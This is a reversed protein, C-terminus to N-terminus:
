DDFLSGQDEAAQKPRKKGKKDHLGAAVEAAYREHNLELLRDLIEQRVVPGVTHRVGQRTDHFGHDLELDDWGYARMVAQDIAVHISRLEAIDADKCAPDHVLNYTATLGAQRSLMVGERRYSDLREGWERMEQTLEPRAFTEFVDTPTYRIRTELTSSHEIAWWYHPASSLLGLMAHDETAFVVTADGYVQGGRVMVPMVAKSHRTIVAIWELGGIAEHLEPRSREFLWWRERATRSYRNAEREPKVTRVVQDFCGAYRTAREIPWDHFNIVWRRASSDPHQNLDEGNLYPFLVEANRRDGHILDQADVPSMTFGMGLIIAGQFALGQNAALRGPNGTVRSVPDLSPAIGKVGLGDLLRPLSRAVSARTTWIACYQLVASRSPWPESKVAQRIETGSEVVQDLGVQRSDGQALTNTAILGTQGSTNLLEHARLVFYAVLDASGRAGRGLNEVLHERYVDGLTGTLKQGGLFPPNGIVADFGSRKFVEPFVLPWHLPKRTAGGGPVDTALWRSAAARAKAFEDAGGASASLAFEAAQLAARERSKAGERASALAAGVVLDAYLRARKTKAEAEALLRRKLAQTDPDDPLAALAIRQEAVEAALARVDGTADFLADPDEHLRRGVKPDLHLYELQDLSIIGLLSDGVALRDDLFTFPRGPDMSVLWLSLKAMEVAMENIDV